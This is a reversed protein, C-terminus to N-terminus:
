QPQRESELGDSEQAAGLRVIDEVLIKGDKDKALRAILEQLPEHDLSDKLFAAAAAVEEPTVKGDYDRDLVRFRDGIKQDVDDLEKELKHLMRDVKEILVSSVKSGPHVLADLQDKDVTVRDSAERAAQYAKKAEEEHETGEKEVMSNYLGIEKNVLNLFDVREKSVSSASALVALASSLKCLQEKQDMLEATAEKQADAATSEVMEELARDRELEKAEKERREEMKAEEKILEDQEKLIELKREKEKLASESPCATMGVLEVVEDPLSSLTAQVAEEPKVEGVNFARSLILLSSPLSRNLSLDLWELLESRMEEVSMNSGLIGRQRCAARLEAESLSEVGESQILKDDEKIRAITAAMKMVKTPAAAPLGWSSINDLTLEDNFLTAFSVIDENSVRRGTRVKNIFESLSEATNKMEGTRSRKVERAMEAVTDQLFKAYQLRVHLRKKMNEEEKMKDQFTSPLMNPFIKLFFPLLFEMFPVIIFVAFPVLRFVDAATRTLQERERRSLTKGMALKMLLRSAIRVDAWLLKTGLWYHRAEAIAAKKWGKIKKQWDARSMGAIARLVAGLRVVAQVVRALVGVPLKVAQQLVQGKEKSGASAEALAAKEQALKVKAKTISLDDVAVDCAEAIDDLAPPAAAVTATAPIGDGPRSRKESAEWTSSTSVSAADAARPAPSSSSSSSSSSPPSIPTSPSSSSSVSPTSMSLWRVPIPDRCGRVRTSDPCVQVYTAFSVRTSLPLPPSAAAACSSASIIPSSSPAALATSCNTGGHSRKAVHCSETETFFPVAGDERKWRWSVHDVDVKKLPHSEIGPCSITSAERGEGGREPHDWLSKAQSISRRGLSCSSSLRVVWPEIVPFQKPMQPPGGRGRVVDRRLCTPPADCRLHRSVLLPPPGGRGRIARTSRRILHRGSWTMLSGQIFTM